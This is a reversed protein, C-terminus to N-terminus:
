NRGILTGLQKAIENRKQGYHVERHHSPCLCAVNGINDLGANALHKIHHVEVYPYGLKNEFLRSDCKLYECKNSARVRAYAAVVPDREIGALKLKQINKDRKQQPIAIMLKLETLSKQLLGSALNDIIERANEDHKSETGLLADSIKLSSDYIPDHVHNEWLRYLLDAEEPTLNFNVGQIGDFVGKKQLVETNKILNQRLQRGRKAHEIIKLKTHFYGKAKDNERVWYEDFESENIKRPGEIVTAIAHIGRSHENKGKAQWIFVRDGVEIKNILQTTLWNFEVKGAELADELRYIEPLSQFVFNNVTEGNKSEFKVAENLATM